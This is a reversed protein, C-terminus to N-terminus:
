KGVKRLIELNDCRHTVIHHGSKIRCRNEDVADLGIVRGNVDHETSKVLDGIRIGCWRKRDANTSMRAAEKLQDHIKKGHDTLRYFADNGRGLRRREVYGRKVLTGLAIGASRRDYGDHPPRQWLTPNLGLNWFATKGVTSFVENVERLVPKDFGVDILAGSFLVTM